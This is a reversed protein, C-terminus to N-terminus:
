RVLVDEVMAERSRDRAARRLREGLRQKALEFRKVPLIALTRM